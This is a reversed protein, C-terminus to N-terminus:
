RNAARSRFLVRNDDFDVTTTFKRIFSLGVLMYRARPVTNHVAFMVSYAKASGVRLYELRHLDM